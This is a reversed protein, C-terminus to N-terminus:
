GVAVIVAVGRRGVLCPRPRPRPPPTRTGYYTTRISSRSLTDYRLYAFCIVVILFCPRRQTWSPTVESSLRGTGMAARGQAVDSPRGGKAVGSKALDQHLPRTAHGDQRM